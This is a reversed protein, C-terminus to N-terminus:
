ASQVHAPGVMTTATGACTVDAPSTHSAGLGYRLVFRPGRTWEPRDGPHFRARKDRAEPAQKKAAAQAWYGEQM